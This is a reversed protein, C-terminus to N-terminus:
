VIQKCTTLGAIVDVGLDFEKESESTRQDQVTNFGSGTEPDL